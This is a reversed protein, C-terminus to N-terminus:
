SKRLRNNVGIKKVKRKGVSGLPEDTVADTLEYEEEGNKVIVVRKDQKRYYLHGNLLERLVVVTRAHDKFEALAVIAQEKDSYNRVKLADVAAVFDVEISENASGGLPLWLLLLFGVCSLMNSSFSAQRSLVQM